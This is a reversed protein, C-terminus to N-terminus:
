HLLPRERWLSVKNREFVRMRASRSRSNSKMEEDGPVVVKRTLLTGLPADEPHLGKARTSGWWRMAKAVLQDELSHFSIIALRGSAPLMRISEALLGKLVQYEQNVAIRVAQFPVTAPDAGTLARRKDRQFVERCIGAFDGCSSLPRKQVVERALSRSFKGVGGEAFMVFLKREDWHNLIEDATLAQRTDMRMDLPGDLRFSFGREPTDLQISSIGLDALIYDAQTVPADNFGNIGSLASFCINRAVFRGPFRKSLRASVASINTNDKDLGIVRVDPFRELMAESHGGNGLTCDLVLRTGERCVPEAYALVEDLLVPVHSPKQMM